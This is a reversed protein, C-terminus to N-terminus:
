DRWASARCNLDIRFVYKAYNLLTDKWDLNKKEKLKINKLMETRRRLRTRPRERYTHLHTHSHPRKSLSRFIHIKM